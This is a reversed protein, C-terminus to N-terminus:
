RQNTLIKLKTGDAAPETEGEALAAEEWVRGESAEPEQLAQSKGSSPLLEVKWTGVKRVLDSKGGKRGGEKRDKGGGGVGM